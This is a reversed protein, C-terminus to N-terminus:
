VSYSDGKGVWVINEYGHPIWLCTQTQNSNDLANRWDNGGKHWMCLPNSISLRRKSNCLVNTSLDVKNFPKNEHIVTHKTWRQFTVTYEVSKTTTTLTM